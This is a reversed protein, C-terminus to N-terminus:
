DNTDVKEYLTLEKHQEQILVCQNHKLIQFITFADGFYAALHFVILFYFISWANKFVFLSLILLSLIIANTFYIANLYYKKEFYFDQINTKVLLGKIKLNIEKNKRRVFLSFILEHLFITVLFSVFLIVAFYLMELPKFFWFLEKNIFGYFIVLPVIMVISLMNILLSTAQDNSGGFRYVKKFNNPLKRYVKSHNM